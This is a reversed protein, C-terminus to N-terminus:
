KNKSVGRCHSELHTFYGAAPRYFAGMLNYRSIRLSNKKTHLDGPIWLVRFDHDGNM